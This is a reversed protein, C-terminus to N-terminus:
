FSPSFNVIEQVFKRLAFIEMVWRAIWSTVFSINKWRIYVIFTTGQTIIGAQHGMRKLVELVEDKKM